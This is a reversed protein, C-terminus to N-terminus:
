LSWGERLAPALFGAAEPCNRARMAPADWELPKGGLRYSVNGLLVTESLPGAYSFPCTVERKGRIAEFWEQYHGISNEIYPKPKEYDKFREGPGVQMRTYDGVLWGKSGLFLVGNRWKDIGLDKLMPPRRKGDYWVLQVPPLDGRSGYRYEVKLDPPTTEPHVPPGDARVWECHGLKLAWHALDMYHCAMDGLTGGGFDWFRRWNAPHYGKHYPREPAPGLWLDWDLHKPVPLAGEPRDGGSWSKGCFVHVERVTGIVGSEVHEVVRRFNDNAHIQIGMQSIVGKKKALGTLTRVEHVSHALPKETYVHLGRHLGAATIVAHTHDPTSVVLADLQENELMDRYDQYGKKVKHKAQAKQLRRQDVDCLAVLEEKAVGALNGAGRGGVGVVGLRIRRDQIPQAASLFPGIGALASGKIFTRRQM